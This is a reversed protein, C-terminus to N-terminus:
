RATKYHRSGGAQLKWRHDRLKYPRPLGSLAAAEHAGWEKESAIFELSIQINFEIEIIGVECSPTVEESRLILQSAIVETFPM